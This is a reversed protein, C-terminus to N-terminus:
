GFATVSLRDADVGSAALVEAVDAIGEAKRITFPRTPGRGSVVAATRAVV